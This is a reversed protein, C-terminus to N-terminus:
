ESEKLVRGPHTYITMKNGRVRAIMTMGAEEALQIARDTPASRSILIPCGMQCVKNLIESSVRGSTVMIKDMLPIKELLCQGFLKDVANHRGLDFQFIEMKDPTCLAANHVGHTLKYLTSRESLKKMLHFVQQPSIEIPFSMDMSRLCHDSKMFTVGKGLGSTITKQDQCPAKKSSPAEVHIEHDSAKIIKTKDMDDPSIFGEVVLFGITLFEKSNNTCLLTIIRNGNLYVALTIERVVPSVAKSWGQEYHIIKKNSILEEAFPLPHKPTNEFSQM